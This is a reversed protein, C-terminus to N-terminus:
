RPISARAAADVRRTKTPPSERLVNTLCRVAGGQQIVHEVRIPHTRIGRARWAAEAQEDLLPIKYRPIYAHLGDAQREIVANNWTLVTDGDDNHLIPIRHVRFGAEVLDLRVREYTAVMARQTRRAFSGLARVEGDRLGLSERAAFYEATLRPDGLLVERDNWLSLYMDIHEHPLDDEDGIMIVRRGVLQSLEQLIAGPEAALRYANRWVTGAGVLAVKTGILLDGGELDLRTREVKLTPMLRALAVPVQLDGQRDADVFEPTPVIVRAGDHRQLFVYRDRAWGSVGGSGVLFRFGRVPGMGDVLSKFKDADYPQALVVCFSADAPVALLLDAFTERVFERMGPDFHVVWERVRGVGDPLVAAGETGTGAGVTLIVCLLPLLIRSTAFLRDNSGSLFFPPGLTASSGGM